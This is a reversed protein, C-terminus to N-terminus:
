VCCILPYREINMDNNSVCGSISSLTTCIKSCEFLRHISGIFLFYETGPNKSKTLQFRAIIALRIEYKMRRKPIM